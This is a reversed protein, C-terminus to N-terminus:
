TCPALKASAGHRAPMRPRSPFRQPLRKDLLDDLHSAPKPRAFHFGQAADCGLVRLREAQAQTEVGEAIVKLDLSHALATMATAMPAPSNTDRIARIFLKDIKVTTFPFQELAALSSYGTGFDDLSLRVGLKALSRVNSRLTSDNADLIARETVEIGLDRPLTGQERLTRTLFPIFGPDSLERPSLNVYVGLPLGEAHSNRWAAAQRAAQTLVTHGVPIILGSREAIPILENPQVWGFDPHRWRLLAEVALMHGDTVSVIPQYHLVLEDQDLARELGRELHFDRCVRARTPEDFLAWSGRNSAKARYMATDANRVLSEPTEDPSALAIGLSAKVRQGTLSTPQVNAISSSIRIAIAVAEQENDLDELLFAFEDGGLRAVTDGGRLVRELCPSLAVLLEDGARHGLSDNLLKFDDLDLMIVAVQRGSREARALAHAVHDFFLARNPLGTLPDHFALHRLREQLLRVLMGVALVTAVAIFWLGGLVGLTGIGPHRDAQVVLVMGFSFSMWGAQVIAQRLSLLAFAYPVLWLYFFMAGGAPAGSAYVGLSAIATGFALVLPSPKVPHGALRAVLLLLGLLLVIGAVIGALRHSGYSASPFLLSVLGTAGAAAFALVLGRAVFDDTSWSPAGTVLAACRRRVDGLVTFASM